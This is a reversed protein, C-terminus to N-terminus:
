PTSIPRAVTYRTNLWSSCTPSTLALGELGPVRHVFQRSVPVVVVEDAHAAATDLLKVIRLDLRKLLPHRLLASEQQHLVM